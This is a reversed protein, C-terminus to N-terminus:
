NPLQPSRFDIWKHSLIIEFHCGTWRSYVDMTIDKCPAEPIWGTIDFISDLDPDLSPVLPSDFVITNVYPNPTGCEIVYIDKFIVQYFTWYCDSYSTTAFLSKDLPLFEIRIYQDTGCQSFKVYHMYPDDVPEYGGAVAIVVGQYSCLDTETICLPLVGSFVWPPLDYVISIEPVDAPLLLDIVGSAPQVSLQLAPDLSQAISVDTNDGLNSTKSANNEKEYPFGVGFQSIHKPFDTKVGGVGFAFAVFISTITIILIGSIIIFYSKNSGDLKM